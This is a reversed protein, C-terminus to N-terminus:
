LIPELNISFSNFVMTRQLKMYHQNTLHYVDNLRFKVSFVSIKYSVVFGRKLIKMSWVYKQIGPLVEWAMSHNARIM